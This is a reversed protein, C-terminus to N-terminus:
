VAYAALSYTAIGMSYSHQLEYSPWVMYFLFNPLCLNSYTCEFNTCLELM